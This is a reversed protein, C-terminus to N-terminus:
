EPMSIVKIKVYASTGTMKGSRTLTIKGSLSSKLVIPVSYVWYFRKEQSDEYANDCQVRYGTRGWEGAYTRDFNSNGALSTNVGMFHCTVSSLDVDSSMILETQLCYLKKGAAPIWEYVITGGNSHTTGISSPSVGGGWSPDSSPLSTSCINDSVLWTGTGQLGMQSSTILKGDEDFLSDKQVTLVGKHASM